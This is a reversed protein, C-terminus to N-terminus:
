NCLLCHVQIIKSGLKDHFDLLMNIYLTMSDFWMKSASVSHDLTENSLIDKRMSELSKELHSESFFDYQLSINMRTFAGNFM